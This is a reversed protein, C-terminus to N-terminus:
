ALIRLVVPNYFLLKVEACNTVTKLNSKMEGFRKHSFGMFFDAINV